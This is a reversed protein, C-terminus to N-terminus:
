KVIKEGNIIYVGKPLKQIDVANGSVKQGNMNFVGGQLFVKAGIAQVGTPSSGNKEIKVNHGITNSLKIDSIDADGISLLAHKGASLTKGNMNYALFLIDNDSLWASVQEFDNLTETTTVNHKENMNLQVQVGGLAVPSEVYLVGDEVTYTATAESMLSMSQASPNLIKQIIGVVDLIDIQLDTNMDAAEFIFPKPKMGAAHNVTTIVDAVDVDGSGNADGMTATLPTVAVVNSVDFEKLDTSLVKYMYYYTEGPTVDYDTYETTEIEVTEQNIRITDAKGENDLQYRYINFGMADEFDNNENNWTLKVRGMQAEGAFGTAMSGAAQVNINFRTKEYPCEFYENDEAGQVYIRNVGDSMTKGGITKYATYITGEENWSGEENVAHEKLWLKVSERIAIIRSLYDGLTM